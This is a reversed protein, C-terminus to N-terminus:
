KNKLLLKVELKIGLTIGTLHIQVNKNKKKIWIRIWKKKIIFSIYYGIAIVHKTFNFCVFSTMKLCLLLSAKKLVM